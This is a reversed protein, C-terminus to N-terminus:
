NWPKRPQIKPRFTIELCSMTGYNHVVARNSVIDIPLYDDGEVLWAEPTCILEALAELVTRTELASRLKRHHEFTTRGTHGEAGYAQQKTAEVSATAEIPFTYHEVSGNRSRWALRVAESVPRTVSYVVKGCARADITITDAMPFDATDLRFIHLGGSPIVHTETTTHPGYGVGVTIEQPGDTLLSLEDCAGEPILRALPMSTLLAPAALDDTTPLFTRSPAALVQQTASSTVEVVVTLVRRAGAYIGTRGVIPTFHLARRLYPAIDFEAATVAAFRKAGYLRSKTNDTIRVELDTVTDAEIAYTLAGGLPAYPQPIRTFQM